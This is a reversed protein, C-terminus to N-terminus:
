QKAGQDASCGKSVDKIDAVDLDKDAKKSADASSETKSADTSASPQSAVSGTTSANSAADAPRDAGEAKVTGKIEVMNGVHENIDKDSHLRYKLGTKDDTLVYNDKTGSLCGKFLQENTDTPQGVSTQQQDAAAPSAAAAPQQQSATADQQAFCIGATLLLTVILLYATKM